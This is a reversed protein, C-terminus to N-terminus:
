SATGAIQPKETPGFAVNSQLDFFVQEGEFRCNITLTFPTEVQCLTLTFTDDATWTGSAAVSQLSLGGLATAGAKWASYGFELSRKGRKTGGGLLHTTLRGSEAGFDFRLSQLTEYNREFTYTKGSVKAAMPSTDAGKPPDIALGALTHLLSTSSSKAPPLTKDELAPLLKEWVLNLVVQMDPVGATIAMVADQEPMVICFQGFAGDGRYSNHRCRWFQYGYGQCWDSEPVTGNSVQKSTAVEVWTEPVIRVGNWLGKQLYLQGFRAIDETTISLGWGGFNVGNPHSEWDTAEIGLPVFLRPRLYELLTQSTLRQVIASLMFTAATNYVFHTGPAHEVELSLFEKFPTRSPFVCGSTDQDHGTSMSLLHHVKMAALNASVKKPKDEPFFSIVPDEVSLRGEAVAMGVATSAFSKSLSFLMHPTEPKWPYWWGEAIVHGHRLLMLSHLTQITKDASRVFEEIASSAVGQEEPTSRPLNTTMPM